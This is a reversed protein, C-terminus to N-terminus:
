KLKSLFLLEQVVLRFDEQLRDIDERHAVFRRSHASQDGLGKLHPLGLKVRRGRNWADQNLTAAVLDALHVFRLRRERGWRAHSGFPLGNPSAPEMRWPTAYYFVARTLGRATEV